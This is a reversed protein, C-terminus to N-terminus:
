NAFAANVEGRRVVRVAKPKDGQKQKRNKISKFKLKVSIREKDIM